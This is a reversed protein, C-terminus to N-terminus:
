QFYGYVTFMGCEPCFYEYVEWNCESLGPGAWVCEAAPSICAGCPRTPLFRPHVQTKSPPADRGFQPRDCVYVKWIAGPPAPPYCFAPHLPVNGKPYM